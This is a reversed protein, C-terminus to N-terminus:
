RPDCAVREVTPLHAHEIANANIGVSLDYLRLVLSFATHSPLALWNGNQVHASALIAIRGDQARLAQASTIMSPGVSHKLVTGDKTHAVLTWARAQPFFGDILYNCQSNLPLGNHDISTTFTLGEGIGLPLEGRRLIASRAYPDVDFSGTRPYATWVGIHIRGFGTGSQIALAATGLGLFLAIVVIVLAQVAFSEDRLVSLSLSPRLSKM